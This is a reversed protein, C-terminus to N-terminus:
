RDRPQILFLPRQFILGQHVPDRHVNPHRKVVHEQIPRLDPDALLRDLNELFFELRLLLAEFCSRHTREIHAPGFDGQGILLWFQDIGLCAQFIRLKPQALQDAHVGGSFRNGGLGDALQLVGRFM